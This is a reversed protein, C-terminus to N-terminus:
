NGRNLTVAISVSDSGLGVADGTITITGSQPPQQSCNFAVTVTVSAGANLSNTQSNAFAVISGNTSQFRLGVRADSDNTLTFTGITQPCPTEGITHTASLSSVSATLNVASPACNVTIPVSVSSGDGFDFNLVDRATTRGNSLQAPARYNIVLDELHKGKPEGNPGTGDDQYHLLKLYGLSNFGGQNITGGAKEEFLFTEIRAWTVNTCTNNRVYLPITEGCTVTAAVPTVSYDAKSLNQCNRYRHNFYCSSNEGFM